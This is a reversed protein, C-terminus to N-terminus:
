QLGKAAVNVLGYFLTQPRGASDTLVLKWNHTPAAKFADTATMANTIAATFEVTFVGSAPTAIVVPLNVDAGAGADRASLTGVITAGTLNVVAGAEDTLAFTYLQADGVRVNVDQKYGISGLAEAM